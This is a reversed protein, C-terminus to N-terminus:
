TYPVTAILFRVINLCVSIFSIKVRAFFLEDGGRTFGFYIRRGSSSILNNKIFFKTLAIFWSAKLYKHFFHEVIRLTFTLSPIQPRPYM